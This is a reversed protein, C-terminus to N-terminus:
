WTYATAYKGLSGKQNYYGEHNNDLEESTPSRTCQREYLNVGSSTAADFIDRVKVGKHNRSLDTSGDLYMHTVRDVTDDQHSNLLVNNRFDIHEKQHEETLKRADCGGIQKKTCKSRLKGGLAFDRVYADVERDTRCVTCGAKDYNIGKGQVNTPVIQHGRRKGDTSDLVDQKGLVEESRVPYLKREMNTEAEEVTYSPKVFGMPNQEAYIEQEHLRQTNDESESNTMFELNNSKSIVSHIVMAIILAILSLRVCECLDM